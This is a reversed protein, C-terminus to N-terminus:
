KPNYNTKEPTEGIIVKLGKEKAERRMVKKNLYRIAQDYNGFNGLLVRLGYQSIAEAILSELIANFFELPIITVMKDCIGQIQTLAMDYNGAELESLQKRARAEEEATGIGLMIYAYLNLTLSQIADHGFIEKGRIKFKALENEIREAVKKPAKRKEKNYFAVLQDFADGVIRDFEECEFLGQIAKAREGELFFLDVEEKNINVERKDM